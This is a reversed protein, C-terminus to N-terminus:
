SSNRERQKLETLALQKKRQIFVGRGTFFLLVAPGIVPIQLGLYLVGGLATALPFLLRRRVPSRVPVPLYFFHSLAKGSVKVLQWGALLTLVAAILSDLNVYRWLAPASRPAEPLWLVALGSLGWGIVM